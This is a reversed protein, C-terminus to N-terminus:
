KRVYPKETYPGNLEAEWWNQAIDFIDREAHRPNLQWVYDRYAEYTPEIGQNGLRREAICHFMGDLNDALKLVRHQWPKLDFVWGLPRMIDDEMDDFMKRIAPDRRKTPAPVDGTALIHNQGGEALDHTLCAELVALKDAPSQWAQMMLMALTAVGHSHHAVTDVRLKKFTHYRECDGGYRLRKLQENLKSM